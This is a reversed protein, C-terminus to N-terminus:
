KNRIYSFRCNEVLCNNTNKGFFSIGRRTIRTIEINDIVINEGGNEEFHIADRFLFNESGDIKFNSIRVNSSNITIAYKTSDENLKTLTRSNIGILNVPKTILIGNIETNYDLYYIGENLFITTCYFCNNLM